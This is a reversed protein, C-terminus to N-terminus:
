FDRWSLSPKLPAGLDASAKLLFDAFADPNVFIQQNDECPISAVAQVGLLVNHVRGGRGQLAAVVGGGSDGACTGTGRETPTTLFGAAWPRIETRVDVAIKKLVGASYKEPDITGRTSQQGYGYTVLTPMGLGDPYLPSNRRRAEAEEAKSPLLGLPLEQVRWTPPAAGAFRILILDGGGESSIGYDRPAPSPSTRHLTSSSGCGCSDRGGWNSDGCCRRRCPCCCLDWYCCPFPHCPPLSTTSDVHVKHIPSEGSATFRSFRLVHRRCLRRAGAHRQAGRAHRPLAACVAGPQARDSHRQM